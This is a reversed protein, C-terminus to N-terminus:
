EGKRKRRRRKEPLISTPEPEPTVEDPLAEISWDRISRLPISYFMEKNWLTLIGTMGADRALYGAIGRGASIIYEKMEGDNFVITVKSQESM